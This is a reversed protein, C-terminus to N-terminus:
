LLAASYGAAKIATVILGADVKTDAEVTRAARDVRIQALPDQAQIARTVSGACGGCHMGEIKLRLM